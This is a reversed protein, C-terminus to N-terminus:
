PSGIVSIQFPHERFFQGRHLRGISEVFAGDHDGLEADDNAIIVFEATTTDRNVNKTAEMRLGRPLGLIHFHIDLSRETTWHVKVPLNAKSNRQIELKAPMETTFLQDTRVATVADVMGGPVIRIGPYDRALHNRLDLKRTYEVGDITAKGFIHLDFAMGPQFTDPIKIRLGIRNVRAPIQHGDVALPGAPGNAMLEIPGDYGYRIVDIETYVFGGPACVPRHRPLNQDYPTTITFAAQAKASIHYAAEKGATGILDRVSLLYQGDAPIIYKLMLEEAAGNIEDRLIEGNARHLVLHPFAPSNLRKANPTFTVHQGKRATFQYYDIDGAEGFQGNLDCPLTIPLAAAIENNPEIEVLQDRASALLNIPCTFPMTTGPQNSLDSRIFGLKEAASWHVPITTPVHSFLNVLVNIPTGIQVGLPFANNALSFTGVRLLFPLNGRYQLDHVAIKYAGTELAEFSFRCDGDVIPDDDAYDIPSGSPNFISLVPDIEISLRQAIVDFQISDGATVDLTFYVPRREQTTGEILCPLTLAQAEKLTTRNKSPTAPQRDLWVFRAESQGEGNCVRIAGLGLPADPAPTLEYIVKGRNNNEKASLTWTAPFSTWLQAPSGYPLNLEQGDLTIETTQGPSLSHTSLSRLRTAFCRDSMGVLLVFLVFLSLQRQLPLHRAIM